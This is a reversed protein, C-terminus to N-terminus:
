ADETRHISLLLLYYHLKLFWIKQIIYSDYKDNLDLQNSGFYIKM